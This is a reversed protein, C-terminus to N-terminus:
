TYATPNKVLGEYCANMEEKDGELTEPLVSESDSDSDYEDSDSPLYDYVPNRWEVEDWQLSWKPSDHLQAISKLADAGMYGEVVRKTSSAPTKVVRACGRDDDDWSHDYLESSAVPASEM